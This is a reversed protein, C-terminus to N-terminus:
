LANGKLIGCPAAAGQGQGSKSFLPCFSKITVASLEGFLDLSAFRFLKKAQKKEFEDYPNIM